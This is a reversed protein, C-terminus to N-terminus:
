GTPPGPDGYVTLVTSTPGHREVRRCACCRAIDRSSCSAVASPPSPTTATRKESRCTALPTTSNWTMPVATRAAAPGCGVRSNVQSRDPWSKARSIWDPKTGVASSNPTATIVRWSSQIVRTFLRDQLLTSSSPYVRSTVSVRASARRASARSAAAARDSSATMDVCSSRRLSCSHTTTSPPWSWTTRVVKRPVPTACSGLRFRAAADRRRERDEPQAVPRLCVDFSGARTGLPVDTASPLLSSSVPCPLRASLSAVSAM